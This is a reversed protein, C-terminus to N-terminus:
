VAVYEDDATYDFELNYNVKRTGDLLNAQDLYDYVTEPYKSKGNDTYVNLDMGSEIAGKAMEVIANIIAEREGHQNLYIKKKMFEIHIYKDIGMYANWILRYVAQSLIVLSKDANKFVRKIEDETYETMNTMANITIYYEEKILDYKVMTNQTIMKFGRFLFHSRVTDGCIAGM